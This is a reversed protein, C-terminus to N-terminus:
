VWHIFRPDFRFPGSQLVEIGKFDPHAPNILFNAEMKDAAISPVKLV